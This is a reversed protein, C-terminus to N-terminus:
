ACCLQNCREKENRNRETEIHHHAIFFFIYFFFRPFTITSTQRAMCNFQFVSLKVSSGWVGEEGLGGEEGM